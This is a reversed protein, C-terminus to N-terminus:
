ETEEKLNITRHSQKQKMKNEKRRYNLNAALKKQSNRNWRVRNGELTYCNQTQETEVQKLESRYSSNTTAKHSNKNWRIKNGHISYQLLKKHRNQKLKNQNKRDNWYYNRLM